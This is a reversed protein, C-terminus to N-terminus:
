HGVEPLPPLCVDVQVLLLGVIEPGHRIGGPVPLGRGIRLIRGAIDGLWLEMVVGVPDPIHVGFGVAPVPIEAIGAQVPLDSREEIDEAPSGAVAPALLYLGM